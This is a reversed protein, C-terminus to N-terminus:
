RHNQAIGRDKGGLGQVGVAKGRDPGKPARNQRDRIATRCRQFRDCIVAIERADSQRILGIGAPDAGHGVGGVIQAHRHFTRQQSFPLAAGPQVAKREGQHFGSLKQGGRKDHRQAVGHFKGFRVQQGPERRGDRLGVQQLMVRQGRDGGGAQRHLGGLCPPQVDEPWLVAAGFMVRDLDTAGIARRRNKCPQM